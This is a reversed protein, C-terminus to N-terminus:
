RILDSIFGFGEKDNEGRRENNECGEKCWFVKGNTFIPSGCVDCKEETFWVTVDPKCRRQKEMLLEYASKPCPIASEIKDRLRICKDMLEKQKMDGTPYPCM